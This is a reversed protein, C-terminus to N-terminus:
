SVRAELGLLHVRETVEGDATRGDRELGRQLVDREVALDDFRPSVFVRFTGTM